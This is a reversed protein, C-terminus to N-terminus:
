RSLMGKLMLEDSADKRNGVKLQKRRRRPSFPTLHIKLVRLLFIQTISIKLILEDNATKV